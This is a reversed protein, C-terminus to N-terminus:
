DSPLALSERERDRRGGERARRRKGEEEQSDTKHLLYNHAIRYLSLHTFESGMEPNAALYM